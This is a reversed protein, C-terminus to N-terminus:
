KGAEGAMELLRQLDGAIEFGAHRGKENFIIEDGAPSSRFLKVEITSKLTESIRRIMGDPTPAKLLSGKSRDATVEMTLKKQRLAWHVKLDDVEFRILRAGTYTTFRYLRNRHWLGSIFGLFARRVWPIIAMSGTFCTGGSQFHNSQCWVWAEPFSRGWDKETYGRGGSFDIERGNLTLSGEIEHDLSVVGHYCEMLPVWAYWGMIGPSLFTRPWPTLRSFRLKGKIEFSSNGIDLIIEDATFRSSNIGIDFRHEKSIFDRIPFPHDVSEGTTGNLVQIFSHSDSPNRHIFVGPIVALINEERRDVIKFYWGEFHPPRRINGQYWSPNLKTRIMKIM